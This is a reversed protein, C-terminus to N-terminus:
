LFIIAEGDVALNDNVTCRTQIKLRSRGIHELVLASVVVEEGVHVPALFRLEQSVYIAGPGPLESSLLASIFSGLLIGHAIPREFRTKAAYAADLHIPNKDGSIEAFQRVM